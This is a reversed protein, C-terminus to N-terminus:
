HPFPLSIGSRDAWRMRLVASRIRLTPTDGRGWGNLPHSLEDDAVSGQRDREGDPALDSPRAFRGPQGRGDERIGTDLLHEGKMQVGFVSQDAHM